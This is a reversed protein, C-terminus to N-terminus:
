VQRLREAPGELLLSRGGDDEARRHRGVLGRWSRSSPRGEGGALDTQVFHHLQVPVLAQEAREWPHGLRDLTLERAAPGVALVGEALQAVRDRGLGARPGVLDQRAAADLGQDHREARREERRALPTTM